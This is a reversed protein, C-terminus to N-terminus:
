WLCENGFFDIRKLRAIFDPKFDQNKGEFVNINKIERQQLKVHVDYIETLDQFIVLIPNEKENFGIINDVILQNREEINKYINFPLEIRHNPKNRPVKQTILNYHDALIKKDYKNGITGTLGVAKNHLNVFIPHSVYLYNMSVDKLIM